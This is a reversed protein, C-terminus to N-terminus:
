WLHSGAGNISIDTHGRLGLRYKAYIHPFYWGFGGFLIKQVMKQIKRGCMDMTNGPGYLVDGLTIVAKVSYFWFIAYFHTLQAQIHSMEETLQTNGFHHTIARSSRHRIKVVCSFACTCFTTYSSSEKFLSSKCLSINSFNCAHNFRKIAEEM